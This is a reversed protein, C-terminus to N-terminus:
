AGPTAARSRQKSAEIIANLQQATPAQNAGKKRQRPAGAAQSLEPNRTMNAPHDPPLM